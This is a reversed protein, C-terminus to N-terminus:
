TSYMNLNAVIFNDLCECFKTVPIFSIYVVFLDYQLILIPSLNVFWISNAWAM